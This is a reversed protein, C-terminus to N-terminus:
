NELGNLVAEAEDHRKLVRLATEVEDHTKLYDSDKIEDITPAKFGKSLRANRDDRVIKLSSLVSARRQSELADMSRWISLVHSDISSQTIIIANTYRKHVLENLVGNDILLDGVENTVNSSIRKKAQERKLAKYNLYFILNTTILGIFAILIISKM